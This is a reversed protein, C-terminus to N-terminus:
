YYYYCLTFVLSISQVARTEFRTAIELTRKHTKKSGRTRCIRRARTMYYYFDLKCDEWGILLRGQLNAEHVPRPAKQPKNISRINYLGEKAFRRALSQASLPFFFQFSFIAAPSSERADIFIYYARCITFDSECVCAYIPAPSFLQNEPLFFTRSIYIDGRENKQKQRPAYFKDPYIGTIDKLREATFSSRSVRRRFKYYVDKKCIYDRRACYTFM